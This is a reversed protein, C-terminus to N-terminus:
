SAKRTVYEQDNAFKPSLLVDSESDFQSLWELFPLMIEYRAGTDIAGDSKEFEVELVKFARDSAEYPVLKIDKVRANHYFRGILQRLSRDTEPDKLDLKKMSVFHCLRGLIVVISM